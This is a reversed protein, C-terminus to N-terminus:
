GKTKAIDILVRNKGVMGWDLPGNTQLRDCVENLKGLRSAFYLNITYAHGIMLIRKGETEKDINDICKSFRTLADRATEWEGIDNKYPEDLNTLASKVAKEYPTKELYGTLDRDLENLSAYKTVNQHGLKPSISIMTQLAKREESIIISDISGFPHNKALAQSDTIGKESLAWNSIPKSVDPETEAHRLFYFTNQM